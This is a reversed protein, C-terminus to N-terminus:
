FIREAGARDREENMSRKMLELESEAALIESPDETAESELRERLYAVARGTPQFTSFPDIDSPLPIHEEVLQKVVEAPPVGHIRAQLDLWAEVHPAFEITLTM